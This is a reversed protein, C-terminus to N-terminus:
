LRKKGLVEMKGIEVERLAPKVPVHWKVNLHPRMFKKGPSAEFWLGGSKLRGLLKPNCPTLWWCM